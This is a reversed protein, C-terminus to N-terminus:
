ANNKICIIEFRGDGLNKVEIKPLPLLIIEEQVMRTMEDQLEQNISHLTDDNIKSGKYKSLRDLIRKWVLKEDMKTAM